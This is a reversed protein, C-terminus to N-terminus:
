IASIYVTKINAFEHIGEEGLERGYGSKQTGGFPLRPDSKVLSNIFVAGDKFLPVLRLAKDQDATFISVGLGYHKHNALDVAEQETQFSTVALLPGFTEEDFIPMNPTVDEVLTPEFFTFKRQGGLRLKGGMALSDKLQRSLNEALDERALVSIYTNEDTPDGVQLQKIKTTLLELFTPYVTDQVLLRKGAICSQGTNQFRAQVCIDATKELDADEFVLMANSGGLELVSKKLYKGALSAVASGAKTSGTLTVGTIHPHAIIAETQNEKIIIHQFFHTPVGAKHVLEQLLQASQLVNDAHKLLVANGLMVAPALCRMVQWYPYNWPMIALLVGSAEYHVESISADTKIQKPKLLEAANQAYYTCVWACKEIEAKAQQIPKGMESTIVKALREKESHFLDALKLLMQSRSSYSEKKFHQFSAHSHLIAEKVEEDSIYTFTKINEKTYPNVTKIM